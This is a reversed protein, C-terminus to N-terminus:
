SREFCAIHLPTCNDKSRVEINAGKKILLQTTELHGSGCAYHLPSLSTTTKVELRAGEEILLIATKLHGKRCAYCLPTRQDRDIAELNAGNRILLRAIEDRGEQCAFHLPTRHDKTKANILASSEILLKSMAYHGSWSSIHLPTCHDRDAANIHAGKNLLINVYQGLDNLALLHLVTFGYGSSTLGRGNSHLINKEIDEWNEPSVDNRVLTKLFEIGIRSAERGDGECCLKEVKECEDTFMVVEPPPHIQSYQSIRTRPPFYAHRHETNPSGPIDRHLPPDRDSTESRSHTDIDQHSRSITSVIASPSGTPESQIHDIWEVIDSNDQSEGRVSESATSIVSATIFLSRASNLYDELNEMM